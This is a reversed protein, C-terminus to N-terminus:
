AAIKATLGALYARISNLEFLRKGKKQGPRKLSVSKILGQIALEHALTRGITFKAQVVHADGWEAENGSIDTKMPALM